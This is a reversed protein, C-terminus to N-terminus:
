TTKPAKPKNVARITDLTEPNRVFYPCSSYAKPDLGLLWLTRPSKPNRHGASRLFGFGSDWLGFGTVQNSEHDAGKRTSPDFGLPPHAPPKCSLGPFAIFMDPNPSTLTELTKPEPKSTSPKPAPNVRLDCFVQTGLAGFPFRWRVGAVYAKWCFSSVSSSVLSGRM